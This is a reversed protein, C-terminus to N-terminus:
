SGAYVSSTPGALHSVISPQGVAQVYFVYPGGRIGLKSVDLSHPCTGGACALEDVLMVEAGGARAAYVAYEHLSAESGSVADNMPDKGWAPAWSLTSGELTVELGTMCNDIGTEIETGEEYDDWTDVMVMDVHKGSQLYNLSGQYSSSGGFSGTHDFMQLWTMGCQQDILRNLSWNALSDDFGKHAESVILSSQNKSADSFFNNLDSMGSDSCWAFTGASGSTTTVPGDTPAVWAYEGVADPPAKGPFGHPELMELVTGAADIGPDSLLALDASHSFFVFVIPHGGADELYAPSAGYHTAIYAIGQNLCAVTAGGSGCAYALYEEELRVAFVYHGAAEASAMINTVAQDETRGPGDWAVVQGAFGRSIQDAVQNDAQAASASAEGNDLHGSSGWWNQSAVLVPVDYGPLLASVPVKSVHGYPSGAASPGAVVANDWFGDVTRTTGADYASASSYTVKQTPAWAMTCPAADSGCASTNNQDLAAVALTPAFAWAGADTQADVGRAADGGADVVGAEVPTGAELDGDHAEESSSTAGCAVSASMLLASLVALVRQM